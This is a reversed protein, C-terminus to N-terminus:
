KDGSAELNGFGEGLIGDAPCLVVFAKPDVRRVIAKVQFAQRPKVVVMLVSRHDEVGTHRAYMGKGDMLTASRDLEFLIAHSIPGPDNETIIYFLCAKNARLILSDTTVSCVALSIIAYIGIEINGAVIMSALVVIGDTILILTGLSVDKRYHAFIRVMLDTGGSSSNGRLFLMASLGFLLGGCISALLLDDTLTPLFRLAEYVGAFMVQSIATLITFERGRVFWGWVLFPITLVLTFLSMPVPYVYNIIIAIGTFGGAAIGNKEQFLLLGLVLAVNGGLMYLLMPLKEKLYKLM